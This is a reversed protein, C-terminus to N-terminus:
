PFYLFGLGALVTKQGAKMKSALVGDKIKVLIKFKRKIFSENHTAHWFGKERYFLPFIRELYGKM